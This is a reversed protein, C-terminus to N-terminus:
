KSLLFEIDEESLEYPKGMAHWKAQMERYRDCRRSHSNFDTRGNETLEGFRNLGFLVFKCFAYHYVEDNGDFGDFRIQAETLKPNKIKGYSYQIHSYIQLIDWVLESEEKPFETSLGEFLMDYEGVYGSELITIYQRYQDAMREDNRLLALNLLIEYQNILNLRQYAGLIEM